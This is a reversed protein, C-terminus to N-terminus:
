NTIANILTVASTCHQQASVIYEHLHTTGPDPVERYKTGGSKPMVGKSTCVPDSRVM